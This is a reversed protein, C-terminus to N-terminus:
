ALRILQLTLSILLLSIFVALIIGAYRYRLWDAFWPEEDVWNPEASQRQPQRKGCKKCVTAEVENLAACAPCKKMDGDLAQRAALEVPNERRILLIIISVLPSVLLSMLFYESFRRGWRYALAGILICLLLWIIVLLV